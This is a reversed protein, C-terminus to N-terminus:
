TRLSGLTGVRRLLIALTLTIAIMVVGVVATGATDAKDWLNWVMTSLVESRPSYLMLALTLNKISLLFVLLAGNLFAPLVLPLVIRRMTNAFGAGSTAAAEELHGHIQAIGGTMLRTAISVYQTTLAIIIIWITGYIPLPLLLYLLLVSLGIIVGPMAHPTFALLDLLFRLRSRGRVLIWGILLGLGMSGLGTAAGLLLTNGIANRFQRGGLVEQYADLSARGISEPSPVAYFPQLSTWLLTLAPLVFIFLVFLAVLAVAAPKWRGLRVRKTRFSHGSVTAYRSARAIVRNYILMPGLAIALLFVSYASALGYDPLGAAPNAEIFIRTSLVTIGGRLGIVLPIDFSEVVSVFQYVLASLLAPMLLPLVIRRAVVQPSGGSTAAADELSADMARFAAVVLLFTVPVLAIGQVFIMGTITYVNIPGPAELGLVARLGVNIMGNTPNLLLSWSIAAIVNPMGIAAVIVVFVANRWPLDTREILWALMLALGFSVALAGGAFVMTAVLVRYTGADLFVDFYNLLTWPVGGEFPLANHTEKFSAVLLMLLPGGVLYVLTAVALLVAVTRSDFRIRRLGRPPV